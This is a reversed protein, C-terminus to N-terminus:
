RLLIETYATEEGDIRGFHRLLKGSPYEPTFGPARVNLILSNRYPRAGLNEVEAM